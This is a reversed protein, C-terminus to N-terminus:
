KEDVIIELDDIKVYSEENESGGEVLLFVTQSRGKPVEPRCQLMTWKGPSIVPPSWNVGHADVSGHDSVCLRVTLPHELKDAGDSSAVWVRAHFLGSDRAHPWSFRRRILKKLKKHDAALVACFSGDHPRAADGSFRDAKWDAGVVATFANGGGWANEWGSQDGKEFGSNAM